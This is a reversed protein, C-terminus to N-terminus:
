RDRRMRELLDQLSECEKAYVFVDVAHEKLAQRLRESGHEDFAVAMNTLLTELSVGNVEKPVKYGPDQASKAFAALFAPGQKRRWTLMVPRNHNVLNLAEDMHEKVLTIFTAGKPTM